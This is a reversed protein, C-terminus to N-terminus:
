AHPVISPGPESGSPLTQTREILDERLGM